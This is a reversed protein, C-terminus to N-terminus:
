EPTPVNATLLAPAGRRRLLGYGAITISPRAPEYHEGIWRELTEFKPPLSTAHPFVRLFEERSLPMLLIRDPPNAQLEALAVSEEAATMMGPALFSFRTPNKAQTIFYDLPMYPHVFLTGGPHVTDLLALLSRREGNSVRVVGVPTRLRSSNRWGAMYNLSFVAALGATIFALSASAREPLLRAIAAATLVLPLPLVFALHMVDARPFATFVMGGMTLLLFVVAPREECDLDLRFRVISWLLAASLPVVAPLAICAALVARVIWEVGSAGELLRNYGGIVAGYPMVNVASYNHRLWAIQHLFANLCGTAALIGIGALAAVAGGAAFPVLNRRQQRNVLLFVTTLAAVVTMSPTCWAAAALLIGSLIWLAVRPKTQLQGSSLLFVAICVAVLALTASDWRHQATVFSPDAIQFGAFIVLAATATKVSALRASLWYVLACQLSFDAIVPIRGAWLSVGFLRFVATQIWYSGPSMYGFFDAYPRAGALMRQAADLLIGEDNTFVLRNSHFLFLLVFAAAFIVAPIRIKM